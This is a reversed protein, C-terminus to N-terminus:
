RSSRRTAVRRGDAHPVAAADRRIADVGYRERLWRAWIRRAARFKAIEEFFDIHSNFFFSLGRRSAPRRRPRAAPRARRLRVRRRAHVRAGAGRDRGSRPHPLRQRQDPPVQARARRLVGDPRRDAAPAAAAPVAVGEARHVGQLHRDAAHRRPREWAVGQREAAALFFAFAIPAPGSITMSTTIDGLPIGDFLTEFDDLSDTAVGCRGVEGESRPDDSDLGMLTPMDFAVSLGARARSSCSGTGRTRRPRAHRVRRVAADDLPTGPVDLPLRRAHVPLARARRAAGGPGLRRPGPPRSSRPLPEGSLTAHSREGEARRDTSADGMRGGLRRCSGAHRRSSPRGASWCLPPGTRTSDGSRSTTSSRRRRGRAAAAAILRFREAALAEVERCCARAASRASRGARRSTRATSRSRRGSRGGRGRARDATASLVPPDWDRAPAWTCCRASSGSSRTRRRRPRGQERRLRRRGRPHRGEGDARRRRPGPALVVVATDTAAAVDVEAQGVGVTEVVIREYGAADLIRVAEPAALAMGGLHGRTAMSRIFVGPDTAHEQMRVRDGLLAGGTYPSTPDVALVAVRLDRDGRALARARGRADVQRRGPAGTLGITAARAPARTSAPPCRRSARAHRGRRRQDRPRRSPPRGRAGRDVLESARGRDALRRRGVGARGDGETARVAAPAAGPIAQLADRLSRCYRASGCSPLTTPRPEGAVGGDGPEGARAAAPAPPLRGARGARRRMARRAARRRSPARAARLEEASIGDLGVESPWPATCGGANAGGPSCAGRDRRVRAAAAGEGGHRAGRAPLGRGVVARGPLPRAAALEVRLTRAGRPACLGAAVGCGSDCRSARGGRSSWASRWASSARTCCTGTSGARSWACGSARCCARGADRRLGGHLLLRGRRHRVRPRLDRRLRVRGDRRRDRRARDPLDARRRCGKLTEEVLPATLAATWRAAFEPGGLRAM